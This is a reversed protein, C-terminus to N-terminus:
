GRPRRNAVVVPIRRHAVRGDRALAEFVLVHKGNRRLKTNWRFSFPAHRDVAARRGDIWLSVRRSPAGWGRVRLVVAGEVRGWRRAGATTLYYPRNHVLVRVSSAVTREGIGHGVVILSHWGNRLMTTALGRSGAFAFPRRRDRWLVRRDVQFSVWRVTATTRVHWSVRGSVRTGAEISSWELRLPRSLEVYYRVLRMYSSWHWYRGPDYHHRAGGFRGRHFPDPVEAHGIIHRRDVPIHFRSCLWAVLRASARYEAATFGRRSGAYGVHEIGISRANVRRNGAHWAIARLPVLQLVRGKRSVVFHASVRARRSQLWRVSPRLGGETSHIVIKTIRRFRGHVRTLNASTRVRTVGPPTTRARGVDESGAAIAAAAVVLSALCLLVLRRPPSV